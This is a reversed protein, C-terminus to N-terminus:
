TINNLYTFNGPGATVDGIAGPSHLNPIGLASQPSPTYSGGSNGILIQGATPKVGTGTGGGVTPTINQALCELAYGGAALIFAFVGVSSLLPISVWLLRM